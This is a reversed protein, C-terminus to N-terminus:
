RPKAAAPAASGREIVPVPAAASAAKGAVGTDTGTAKKTADGAASPSSAAGAGSEKPPTVAGSSYQFFVEDPRMMGLEYRAREEIADAGQKLDQVDAGLANNRQRLLENKSQQARLQRDVEWVRLWGGKGLWLPWQILIILAILIGGLLKM